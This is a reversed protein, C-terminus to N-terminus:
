GLDAAHDGTRAGGGEPDGDRDRHDGHDHPPQRWRRVGLRGGAAPRSGVSTAARADHRGTTAAAGRLAAGAIAHNRYVDRRDLLLVDRDPELAEARDGRELLDRHARLDVAPEVLHEEGFPWATM